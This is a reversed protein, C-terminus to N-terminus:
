SALRRQERKQEIESMAQDHRAKMRSKVEFVLVHEALSMAARREDNAMPRLIGAIEHAASQVATFNFVRAGGLLNTPPEVM